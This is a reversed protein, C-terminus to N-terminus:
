EAIRYKLQRGTGEKVLLGRDVMERIILIATAQSVDLEREIDKRLIYGQKEALQLVIEERDSKGRVRLPATPLEKREGAYNINPLTIKFANDIIRKLNRQWVDVIRSLTLFQRRCRQSHSPFGVPFFNDQLKCLLLAIDEALIDLPFQIHGLCGGDQDNTFHDVTAQQDLFASTSLQLISNRFLELSM